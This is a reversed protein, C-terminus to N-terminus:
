APHLPPPLAWPPPLNRFRPPWLSSATPPPHFPHRRFVRQLVFQTRFSPSLRDSARFARRPTGSRRASSRFIGGPGFSYKTAATRQSAETSTRDLSPLTGPGSSPPPTPFGLPYPASAAPDFTLAWNDGQVPTTPSPSPQAVGLIAAFTSTFATAAASFVAVLAVIVLMSSLLFVFSSNATCTCLDDM